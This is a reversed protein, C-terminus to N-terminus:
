AKARKKALEDVLRRLVTQTEDAWWGAIVEDLEANVDSDFLIALDARAKRRTLAMAQPPFDLLEDCWRVAAQIVSEAPVIEDVLGVQAAEAPSILTGTVALREAQRMGVTRQLAGLIVPPLPIGVRVENLGIKWDGQAVFRRDCFLALVTGGAPAHGTIAAAVPIPSCALARLLAYFDKWVAAMATRDLTLLLPVDLGGSFRGPFGSLVLARVGDQPAHEIANRLESILQPGLANAPPHNLQLERVKGHEITLIM